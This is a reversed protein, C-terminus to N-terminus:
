PRQQVSLVIGPGFDLEAVKGRLQRNSLSLPFDKAQGHEYLM